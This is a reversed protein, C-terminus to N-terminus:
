GCKWPLALTLSLSTSFCFIIELKMTLYHRETQLSEIAKKSASPFLPFSNEADCLSCSFGRVETQSFSKKLFWFTLTTHEMLFWKAFFIGAYFVIFCRSYYRKKKPYLSCVVVTCRSIEMKGTSERRMLLFYFLFNTTCKWM